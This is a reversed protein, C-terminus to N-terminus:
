EPLVLEFEATNSMGVFSRLRLRNTEQGLTAQAVDQRSRLRQLQVQLRSHQSTSCMNYRGQQIQYITDNNALNFEAIQLNSQSAMVYFLRSVAERAIFEMEEVYERRSEEYRLPEIMRDWRLRNFSFHPQDLRINMPVGSWNVVEREIDDVVFVSSNVSIVGGTWLIPQQLG